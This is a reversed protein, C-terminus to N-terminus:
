EVFVKRTKIIGDIELSLLYVGGPLTRIDIAQDFHTKEISQTLHVKGRLDFLRIMGIEIHGGVSIHLVDRAPNPYVKSFFFAEHTNYMESATANPTNAGPNSILPLATCNNSIAMQNECGTDNGAIYIYGSIGGNSLLSAIPCCDTLTTNSVLLLAGDVITVNELGALSNLMTQQILLDGNITIVNSLPNLDTIGPGMIIIDGDIISFCPPFADIAAQTMFILNGVFTEGSLGEDIQGDCNNDLGDCVETNGPFIAADNDDCDGNCITYGDGDIDFGEDISGDCNNDLNDCVELADPSISADSDDCDGQAVSFGDGDLDPNCGEDIQGDCNNDIGDGCIETNGPFVNPENDDCDGECIKVGDGDADFGEDIQGDCNNDIDDCLEMTFPHINPNSDDCDQNNDVYGTECYLCFTQSQTPDGYSDNDADLFCEISVGFVMVTATCSSQLGTADEVTLTVTNAGLNPCDFANPSLSILNVTGCNDFSGSNIQAPSIILPTVSYNIWANIDQCQAIPPSNDLVEIDFNCQISNGASDTGTITITHTGLGIATGIAPNQTKNITGCGGSAIALDTFDLLSFSCNVDADVSFGAPCVDFQPNIDDNQITAIGEAKAFNINRGNAQLNSLTVLFGEDPEALCDGIAQVSINHSEGDYGAFNLNGNASNYDNNSLTATNDQTEWDTSIPVDVNGSLSVTFNYNIVGNDGEVMSLDDISLSALDNNQITCIGEGDSISVNMGSAQINSLNATFNEDLEVKLDEYIPVEFTQTEGANGIFNLTGTNAIYDQDGNQDQATGDSTAYDVSFGGSVMETLTVTFTATGASEDVNLDDISITAGDDNLITGIGQGNTIQLAASPNSLHVFFTEDLEVETDPNVQISISKSNSGSASFSLTGSKAIYDNNASSASGDATAYDIQSACGAHSRTVEFIYTNTGNDGEMKSVDTISVTALSEVTVTASCNSTNGLFDSVFLTVMNDGIHSCNFNSMDLYISQVGCNDNSNNNIDTPLISAVGNGDLQVTTNQCQANPLETDVLNPDNLDILNDCDNDINDCLETANPHIDPNNDDCDADNTVFGTPLYCEYVSVAPDGFGDGDMDRYFNFFECTPGITIRSFHDISNTELWDANQDRNVFPFIDWGSNSLRWIDLDNEPISANETDFYYVRLTADLNSNNSPEIDFYRLIGDGEPTNQALHGRRITTMGLNSNSTIEIGINGPNAAIPNNLTVTKLIEGNGLDFIRRTESEGMIMGSSGLNLNNGNLDLNGNVLQIINDISIANVLQLDNSSKNLILDYFTMAATGSISFNASLADGIIQVNGIGASFNGNNIFNTNNLVLNANGSVVIQAGPSIELKGQGLCLGIAGLSLIYLLLYKKM